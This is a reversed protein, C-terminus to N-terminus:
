LVAIGGAKSPGIRIYIIHNLAVTCVATTALKFPVRYENYRTRSKVGVVDPM